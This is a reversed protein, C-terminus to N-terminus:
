RVGGKEVIYDMSPITIGDAVYDENSYNVYVVTGDSYKTYAVDDALNAHDIITCDQIHALDKNVKDYLEYVTESWLDYNMSYFIGYNIDKIIENPAKILKFSLGSGTELARLFLVMYDDATNIPITYYQVYGHLVINYFPISEDALYYGSSSVPANRIASAYQLAAFNTGNALISYGKDAALKMTDLAADLAQDRTVGYM